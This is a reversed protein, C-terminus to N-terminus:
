GDAVIEEFCTKLDFENKDFFEHAMIVDEPKKKDFIREVLFLNAQNVDTEEDYTYVGPFGWHQNLIRLDKSSSEGKIVLNKFSPKIAVILQNQYQILVRKFSFNDAKFNYDFGWINVFKYEFNDISHERENLSTCNHIMQMSNYAVNYKVKKDGSLYKGFAEVLANGKNIRKLEEVFSKIDELTGFMHKYSSCYAPIAYEDITLRLM